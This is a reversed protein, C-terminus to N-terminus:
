IKQFSARTEPDNLFVLNIIGLILSLINGFIIVCIELIAITQLRGINVRELSSSLLKAGYIIEFIGLIMPLIPVFILPACCIGLGLTGIIMTFITIGLTFFFIISFLINAIGNVMMLIGITQVKQPRQQMTTIPAPTQEM